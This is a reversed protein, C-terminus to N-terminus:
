GSNLDEGLLGSVATEFVPIGLRNSREAAEPSRDVDIMRPKTAM